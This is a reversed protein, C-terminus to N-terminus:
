QSACSRSTSRRSACHQWAAPSSPRARCYQCRSGSSYKRFFPAPLSMLRMMMASEVSLSTKTQIRSVALDRASTIVHSTVSACIIFAATGWLLPASGSELIFGTLSKTLYPMIFGVLMVILAIGIVIAYDGGSLCNKMYVLLDRIGIKKLPLPRYFCVADASFNNAESANIKVKKGSKYYYYGGFARPFVATPMGDESGSVIMPGFANKYWKGTLKVKRYFIGSPRLAYELQEEPETVSDPIAASKMHYYKLIDEIANKTVIRSDKLEGAGRVGMVSSAMKFISEEFVNQDSQKRQRIQEDFWSL